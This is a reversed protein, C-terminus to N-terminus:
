RIEALHEKIIIRGDVGVDELHDGEKLNGCESGYVCKEEGVYVTITKYFLWPM